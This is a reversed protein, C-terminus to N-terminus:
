VSKASAVVFLDHRAPDYVRGIHHSMLEFGSRETMGLWQDINMAYVHEEADDWGFPVAFMLYGGPKLVRRIEAFTRSLDSSHELCHSSFVADFSAEEYPLETNVGTRAQAPDLGHAAFVSRTHETTREDIDLTWYAINRAMLRSLLEPYVYGAGIDLLRTHPTLYTLAESFRKTYAALRERHHEHLSKGQAMVHEACRDVMTSQVERFEEQEQADADADATVAITAQVRPILIGRFVVEDGFSEPNRSCIRILLPEQEAQRSLPVVECVPVRSYLDFCDRIVGKRWFMWPPTATEVTIKGSWAHRNFLGMIRPVHLDGVRIACSTQLAIAKGDVHKWQGALTIRPDTFPIFEWDDKKIMAMDM